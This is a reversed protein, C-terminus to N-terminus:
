SWNITHHNLGYVVANTIGCVFETLNLQSSNDNRHIMGDFMLRRQFMWTWEELDLM